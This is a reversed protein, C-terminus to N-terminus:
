RVIATVHVHVIMDRVLSPLSVTGRLVSVARRQGQPLQLAIVYPV